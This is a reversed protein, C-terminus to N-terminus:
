SCNFDIAGFYELTWCSPEVTRQLVEEPIATRLAPCTELAETLRTTISNRRFFDDAREEFLRAAGEASTAISLVSHMGEGTAYHTSYTIWLQDLNM